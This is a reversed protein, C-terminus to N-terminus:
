PVVAIEWSSLASVLPKRIVLVNTEEDFNSVLPVSELTLSKPKRKVGMVVIREVMRSSLLDKNTWNSGLQVQNKILGKWDASFQSWAYNGKREYDFSHEDDIYLNGTAQQSGDLAIYLTYPDRQMMQTSRRLRLRRFIISGGRQFVPITDIDSNVSIAHSNEDVNHEIQVKKMTEVNYWLHEAPFIVTTETVGSDTVPKVLLDSGIIYQDDIGYLNELAPYQMWMARMVPMGSTAAEKFITYWYPLLAYRSTAAKRMRILWEEGFLWPERRKTHLHAHGRFFPQYAGAQMWRTMLEADPNGFFGGVDAGVFSLAAANLSLLMPTAIKLHSWASENDGTWIAGYKQSGAFFSRSLVFPRENEGPNRRILGEATARQFLIGYLNHWERHEVGDLNRLDKQMSVEPGNFVSPENMDNWTFLSPTSDIYRKYSFQDAWWTRVKENTFDLYSSSGPWCWGDYDAKGDKKKVYLGNSTAEKHIYYNNDRKIHPDIITVMQRGQSNLKEQMATPNPFLNEDWTFYKKEDTHEIDLWLVDYPYDLEEFKEHVSYIDDQDRYNWRCQHYGLAFMPPLSMRGTLRAYQGYFAAPNPGPLFFLDIVGSESMWHTKTGNGGNTNEVDVFTETPNFWFVGITGGQLSQSIILPVEGYLAMTEDLEYEFVDLNYLRYPEKYHAEKGSTAKLQMSSAHEPLGFLHTSKPFIVDAGVSMPGFPKSDVHDGFKEEWMGEKDPHFQQGDQLLKRNTETREEQPQSDDNRSSTDTVHEERTGDAYIALGDEWYGVVEKGGHRDEKRNDVFEDDEEDLPDNQNEKITDSNYDGEGGHEKRRRIEFHMLSDANVSVLPIMNEDYMHLSFPKFQVLFLPGREKAYRFAVFNGYPDDGVDTSLHELLHPLIKLGEDGLGDIVKVNESGKMEKWNLILDDSTWRAKAYAHDDVTESSSYTETIRVRAVGDQLLYVSLALTEGDRGTSPVPSTNVLKATLFPRPGRVYPDKGGNDGGSTQAMSNASFTRRLSALIGSSSEEEGQQEDLLSDEEKKGKMLQEGTVSTTTHPDFEISQPLLQYQYQPQSRGLRHRRCFSTQSCTRFKSRDVAMVLTFPLVILLIILFLIFSLM